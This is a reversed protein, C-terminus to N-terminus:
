GRAACSRSATGSCSARKWRTSSSPSRAWSSASPARRLDPSRLHALDRRRPVRLYQSRETDKIGLLKEVGMIYGVNNLIPSVYNLRDTYPLVQHWTANESSKSFGRHLFGIEPIADVITEGDLTVTMRVTGHMAPHSPGLNVTMLSTPLEAELTLPDDTM